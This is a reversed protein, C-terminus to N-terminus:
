DWRRGSPTRYEVWSSTNTEKKSEDHIKTAIKRWRKNYYSTSKTYSKALEEKGKIELGELEDLSWMKNTVVVAM